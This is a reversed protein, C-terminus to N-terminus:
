GTKLLEKLAQHGTRSVPIRSKDKLLIQHSQNETSEVEIIHSVNVLYSRHVRVFRDAPLAKEFYSLTKKKMFAGNTTRVKVYDDDAELLVIEEFPLIHIRTGNKIVVRDALPMNDRFNETQEKTAVPNSAMSSRFKELAHFLREQSFPKLLYDIANNEFARLAYEDFATTFIVGPAEDLLELMEFGNLKPMQVDLFVLDPQYQQIAKIGEFGDHCCAVVDIDEQGSLYEKLMMCALPEDDIILAKIM